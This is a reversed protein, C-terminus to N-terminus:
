IYRGERMVEGAINVAEEESYGFDEQLAMIAGNITSIDFGDNKLMAAIQRANGM